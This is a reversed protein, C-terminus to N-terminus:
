RSATAQPQLSVPAMRVIGCRLQGEGGELRPFCCFGSIEPGEGWVRERQRPLRWWMGGYCLASVSFGDSVNWRDGAQILGGSGPHDSGARGEGSAWGLPATPLVISLSLVTQTGGQLVLFGISGRSM